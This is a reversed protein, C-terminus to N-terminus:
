ADGTQNVSRRKNLRDILREIIPWDNIHAWIEKAKFGAKRKRAREAAKRDRDPTSVM